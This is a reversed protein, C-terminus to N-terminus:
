NDELRILDLPLQDLLYWILSIADEDLHGWRQYAIPDTVLAPTQPVGRDFLAALMEISEAATMQAAPQPARRTQGAMIFLVLSVSVALIAAAAGTLRWRWTFIVPRVRQM